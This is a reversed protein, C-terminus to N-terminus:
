ESLVARKKKALSIKLETLEASITEKTSSQTQKRKTLTNIEQDLATLKEGISAELAVQKKDKDALETSRQQM